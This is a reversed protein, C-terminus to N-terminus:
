TGSRRRARRALHGAAARAARAAGRQGDADTAGKLVTPPHYVGGNVIGAIAAAEQIGTVSLAQGFAMQDRQDDEM